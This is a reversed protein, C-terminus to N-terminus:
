KLATCQTDTCMYFYTIDKFIKMEIENAQMTQIDIITFFIGRDMVMLSSVFSM